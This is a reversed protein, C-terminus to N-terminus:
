SGRRAWRYGLTAWVLGIFFQAVLVGASARGVDAVRDLRAEGGRVAGAMGGAGGRVGGGAAEAM